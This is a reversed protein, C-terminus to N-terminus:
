NLDLREFTQYAMTSCNHLQSQAKLSVRVGRSRRVSKITLYTACFKCLKVKARLGSFTIERVNPQKRINLKLKHQAAPM